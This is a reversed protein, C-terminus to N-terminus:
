CGEKDDVESSSRGGVVCQYVQHMVDVAFRSYTSQPTGVLTRGYAAIQADLQPYMFQALPVKDNRNRLRSLENFAAVPNSNVESVSSFDNLVFTCPFAAFFLGLNADETPQKSDTAIFLPVNFPLMEDASHLPGRCTLSRDLLSDERTRISPMKPLQHHNFAGPRQAHSNRRKTLPTNPPKSPLSNFWSAIKPDLTDPIQARTRLTASSRYGKAIQDCLEQPQKMKVVCLNQWVGAMNAAASKQFIGDGVRLHLGCYKGSGGLRDRVTETIDDLLANKFVTAQRFTSRAEYAEDTTTRIRSTGFLTGLNVLKYDRTDRALKLVDVRNEFKDLPATDISSDYYRFQYLMDDKLDYRDVGAKGSLNLEKTLWANTANWREKMPVLQRAGNLDVIFDWGLQTWSFYGICEKPIPDESDGDGFDKCHDLATKSAMALRRNLKDFSIYPVAHGLSVPPVFLTRNLMYAITLANELSIRQNHYGSHPSYALYRDIPPAPSILTEALPPPAVDVDIVSSGSKTPTLPKRPPRKKLKPKPQELVQSLDHDSNSPMSDGNYRIAEDAKLVQDNALSGDLRSLPSDNALSTRPGSDSGGSRTWWWVGLVASALLVMRLRAKGRSKNPVLSNLARSGLNYASAAAARGAVTKRDAGGMSVAVHAHQGQSSSGLFRSRQRPSSPVTDVIPGRRDLNNADVRSSSLPMIGPRPRLLGGLFLRQLSSPSTGEGDPLLHIRFFSRKNRKVTLYRLPVASRPPICGRPATRIDFSTVPLGRTRFLAVRRTGVKRASIEQWAREMRGIKFVQMSCKRSSSPPEIIVFSSLDGQNSATGTYNPIGALRSRLQSAYLAGSVSIGVMGGPSRMLGVTSIATPMDEIVVSPQTAVYASQFGCLEDSSPSSGYYLATLPRQRDELDQQGRTDISACGDAVIWKPDAICDM